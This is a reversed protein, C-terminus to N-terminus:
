PVVIDVRLTDFTTWMSNASAVVPNRVYVMTGPRSVAVTTSGPLRVDLFVCASDVPTHFDLYDIQYRGKADTAM